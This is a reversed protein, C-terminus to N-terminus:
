EVVPINKEEIPTSLNQMNERDSASEEVQPGPEVEEWRNLGVAGAISKEKVWIMMSERFTIDGM